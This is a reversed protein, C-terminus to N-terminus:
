KFNMGKMWSKNIYKKQCFEKFVRLSELEKLQLERITEKSLKIPQSM